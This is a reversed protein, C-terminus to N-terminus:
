DEASVPDSEQAEAKRVVRRCYAVFENPAMDGKADVLVVRDAHVSTIQHQQRLQRHLAHLSRDGTTSVLEQISARVFDQKQESSGAAGTTSSLRLLSEVPVSDM